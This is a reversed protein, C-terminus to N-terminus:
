PRAENGPGAADPGDAPPGAPVPAEPPVTAGPSGAGDAPSGGAWEGPAGDPAARRRGGFALLRSALLFLIGLAVGGAAGIVLALTGEDEALGTVGGAPPTSVVASAAPSAPAGSSGGSGWGPPLPGAPAAVPGYRQPTAAGVSALWAADFGAANVGLAAQFAEDDTVGSAYSRILRVLAAQGHTRVLYDVASVAESYALSFRDASTPFQGILAELPMLSGGAAAAAVAQRDSSDFGVSLYVALGENLWHPPDHYPNHTATDFVLHTLEHPVVVGVWSANLEDPTILAFMTRIEPIAEGGVNERTGPGLADYFAQQDAYIYFDIPQTETVGLLAAAKQIAADGLAIARAAFAADGQYWHLRVIRGMRTQWSFRTDAYTASAPPGLVVSGDQATLRWRATLPTNAILGDQTADVLYTLTANPGSPASVEAVFPGSAGPFDILIEVHRLSGPDGVLPQDFTVGKGFVSTASPQGFVQGAARAPGAAAPLLLVALAFAAALAPLRRTM